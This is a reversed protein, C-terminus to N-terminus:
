ESSDLVIASGPILKGRNGTAFNRGAQRDDEAERFRAEIPDVERAPRWAAIFTYAVGLAVGGLTPVLVALVPDLRALASLRQGYPLAFFLSHLLDVGSSMAAVVVGALAGVVAALLILNSERARIFARLRHPVEFEILSKRLSCRACLLAGDPDDRVERGGVVGGEVEARKREFV